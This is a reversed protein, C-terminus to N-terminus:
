ALCQELHRKSMLKLKHISVFTRYTAVIIKEIKWILLKLGLSALQTDLTMFSRKISLCLHMLHMLLQEPLVRAASPVDM